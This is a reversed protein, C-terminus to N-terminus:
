CGNLSIGNANEVEWLMTFYFLTRNLAHPCGVNSYILEPSPLLKIRWMACHIETNGAAPSRVSADLRRRTNEQSFLLSCPSSRGNCHEQRPAALNILSPLSSLSDPFNEHVWLKPLIHHKHLIHLKFAKKLSQPSSGKLSFLHAIETIKDEFGHHNRIGSSSCTWHISQIDM